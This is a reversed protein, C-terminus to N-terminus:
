IQKDILWLVFFVIFFAVVNKARMNIVEIKISTLIAVALM